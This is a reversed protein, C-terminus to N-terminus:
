MLARSRFTNESNECSWKKGKLKFTIATKKLRNNNIKQYHFDFNMLEQRNQTFLNIFRVFAGLANFDYLQPTTQKNTLLAM